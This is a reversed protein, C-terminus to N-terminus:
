KSEKVVTYHMVMKDAKTITGSKNTALGTMKSLNKSTQIFSADERTPEPAWGTEDLYILLFKSNVKETILVMFLNGSRFGCALEGKMNLPTGFVHIKKVYKESFISDISTQLVDTKNGFAIIRPKTGRDVAAQAIEVYDNIYSDATSFFNTGFLMIDVQSSGSLAQKMRAFANNLTEFSDKQVKIMILNDYHDFFAEDYRYYLGNVRYKTGTFCNTYLVHSQLSEFNQDMDPNLIILTNGSLTEGSNIKKMPEIIKQTITELSFSDILRINMNRLGQLKEVEDIFSRLVRACEYTSGKNSSILYLRCNDDYCSFTNYADLYAEYTSLYEDDTGTYGNDILRKYDSVAKEVDRVVGHGYFLCSAYKAISYVYEEDAAKKYLKAASWWSQSTGLGEAYCDALFQVGPMNNKNALEKWLAFAASYDIDCYTGNRYCLAVLNKADDSDYGNKVAKELWHFSMEGNQETGRGDKYFQSVTYMCTVNGNEASREYFQLAITDNKEVYLGNEYMSGVLCLADSDNYECCKMALEFAKEYGEETGLDYYYKSLTSIAAVSGGDSALTMWEMYKDANKYFLEYNTYALAIKYQYEPNLPASLVLRFGHAGKNKVYNDFPVPELSQIEERTSYINGGMFVYQESDEDWCLESVNGLMDYVGKGSGQNNHGSIWTRGGSNLNYWVVNSFKKESIDNKIYSEDCALLWEQKTPLRFGFKTWDCEIEYGSKVDGSITYCEEFGYNKSLANCYKAIYMLPLDSAAAASDNQCDKTRVGKLEDANLYKKLKDVSVEYKQIFFGETLSDGTSIYQMVSSSNQTTTFTIPNEANKCVRKKYEEFPDKDGVPWFGEADIRSLKNWATKTIAPYVLQNESDDPYHTLAFVGPYTDFWEPSFDWIFKSGRVGGAGWCSDLLIERYRYSTYGQNIEFIKVINWAHGGRKRGYGTGSVTRADLGVSRAMQTFLDAYGACVGKRKKFANEADYIKYSTDYAINYCIWDYIARAREIDSKLGECVIRAVAEPTEEKKALPKVREDIESYDPREANFWADLPYKAMQEPTLHPAQPLEKGLDKSQSFLSVAVSFCIILLLYKKLFWLGIKKSM